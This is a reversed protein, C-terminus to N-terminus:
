PRALIPDGDSFRLFNTQANELAWFRGGVTTACDDLLHNLTIRAGSRLNQHIAQDGFLTTTTPLGLVGAEAQPTGPPSTTVLAPINQGRGFWLLYEVRATTRSFCCDDASCGDSIWGCNGQCGCQVTQEQPPTFSSLLSPPGEQAPLSSLAVCIALAFICGSGLPSLKRM